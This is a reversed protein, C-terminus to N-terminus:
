DCYQLNIWGRIKTIYRWDWGFIPVVPIRLTPTYMYMHVLPIGTDTPPEITGGGIRQPRQGGGWEM